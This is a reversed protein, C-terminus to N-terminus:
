RGSRNYIKFFWNIEKCFNLIYDDGNSLYVRVKLFIGIINIEFVM